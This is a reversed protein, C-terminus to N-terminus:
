QAESRFQAPLSRLIIKSVNEIKQTNGSALAEALMAKMPASVRTRFAPSQLGKVLQQGALGYVLANTIREQTNDGTLGGITAGAGGTIASTLGAGQAQTRLETAKLVDKLGKWFAYEKNISDVTPNGTAILERFSSAGERTAWASASDTSSAGVKQGYLGAKSVIKGWVTKIKDAKDVPIDPGLSAVFRDLKDLRKVVPEAGPIVRMAGSSDPVMLTQRAKDIDQAFSAGSVTEGRAAASAIEAGKAKGVNALEAEAQALMQSRSGKVGRELMEPALKAADSKAWEKTAGLARAVSKEASEQVKPALRAAASGYPLVATLGASVGTAIPGGGQAATLGASKAVEAVKGMKGVAGTPLFFEGVQEGMQGVSQATNTPKVAERAAPFAAQSLGPTGYLADVATSVGPIQHVLGGLGIVTNAAGKLIGTGVDLATDLM